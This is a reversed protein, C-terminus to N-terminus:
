TRAVSAASFRLAASGRRTAALIQAALALLGVDRWIALRMDALREADTREVNSRGFCACDIPHRRALNISLAGIFVVLLLALLGAATGRWLGLFLALGTLLELWPLTLALANVAAEPLLRYNHIEHAFGPPDSIKAVAAVVFFAALVFQVRVTLWPSLLKEKM